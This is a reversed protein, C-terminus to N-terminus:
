QGARMCDEVTKEIGMVVSMKCTLLDRQRSNEELDADVRDFCSKTRCRERDDQLIRRRLELNRYEQEYDDKKAMFDTGYDGDFPSNQYDSGDFTIGQPKISVLQVQLYESTDYGGISVRNFVVLRNCNDFETDKLVGVMFGMMITSTAIPTPKKAFYMTMTNFQGTYNEKVQGEYGIAPEPWTMEPPKYNGPLKRASELFEKSKLFDNGMRTGATLASEKTIARQHGAKADYVYSVMQGNSLWIAADIRDNTDAYDFNTKFFGTPGGPIMITGDASNVYYDMKFRNGHRAYDTDTGGITLISEIKYDFKFVSNVDSESNPEMKSEANLAALCNGVTTSTSNSTASGGVIVFQADGDDEDRPDDMLIGNKNTDIGNNPISDPDMCDSSYVEAPFLHDGTSRVKAKIRLYITRGHGLGGLDWIGTVRNYSGESYAADIYEFGSPLLGLVQIGMCTDPGDNKLAITFTVNEDSAAQNEDVKVDLSLDAQTYATTCCFVIILFVLHIRKM